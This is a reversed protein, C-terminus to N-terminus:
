KIKFFEKANTYFIKQIIQQSYEPYEKEITEIYLNAVENYKYPDRMMNLPADSGFMIRDIPINKIMATIISTGNWSTDCYLKCNNKQVSEFMIKIAEIKSELDGCSLHGLIVRVDPHRQALNYIQYPNSYLSKIDGVHFLCPLDFEKAIEMYPDYLESDAPLKSAESHLKLGAFKGKHKGLILKINKPNGHVPECVAFLLAQPFHKFKKLLKENAEIEDLYPKGDPSDPNSAMGSLNSVCFYEVANKDLVNFLDKENFDNADNWRGIHTHIDIIHM